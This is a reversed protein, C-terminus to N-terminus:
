SVSLVDMHVERSTGVARSDQICAASEERHLNSLEDCVPGAGGM